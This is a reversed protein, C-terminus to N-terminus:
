PCVNEQDCGAAAQEFEVLVSVQPLKTGKVVRNIMIHQTILWNDQNGSAFGCVSVDQRCPTYSQQNKSEM